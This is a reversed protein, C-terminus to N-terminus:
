KNVPEKNKGQKRKYIGLKNWGRRLFKEEKLAIRSYNQSLQGELYNNWMTFLFVEEVLYDIKQEDLYVDMTKNKLHFYAEENIVGDLNIM